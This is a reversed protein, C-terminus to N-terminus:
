GALHLKAGENEESINGQNEKRNKSRIFEEL